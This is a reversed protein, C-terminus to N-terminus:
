FFFGQEVYRTVAHLQFQVKTSPRDMPVIVPLVLGPPTSPSLDVTLCPSRFPDGFATTPTSPTAQPTLLDPPTITNSQQSLTAQSSPEYHVSPSEAPARKRFFARISKKPTPTPPPKERLTSHTCYLSELGRLMQTCDAAWHTDRARHSEIPCGIPLSTRSCPHTGGMWARAYPRLPRHAIPRVELGHELDHASLSTLGVCRRCNCHQEFFFPTKSKQVRNEFNKGHLMSTM